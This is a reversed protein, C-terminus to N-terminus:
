LLARRVNVLENPQHLVARAVSQDSALANAALHVEPQTSREFPIKLLHPPGAAAAKNVLAM